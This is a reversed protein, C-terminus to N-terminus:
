GGFVVDVDAGAHDVGVVPARQFHQEEVESRGLKRHLLPIANRLQHKLPNIRRLNNLHLFQLLANPSSPPKTTRTSKNSLFPLKQTHEYSSKHSPRSHM